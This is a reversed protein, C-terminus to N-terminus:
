MIMKCRVDDSDESDSQWYIRGGRGESDSQWIMRGRRINARDRRAPIPVSGSDESAAQSFMSRIFVSLNEIYNGNHNGVFEGNNTIGRDEGGSQSRQTPIQACHPCLTPKWVGTRYVEDFLYFLASATHRDPGEVTMDLKSNSPRFKAVVSLGIDAEVRNLAIAM